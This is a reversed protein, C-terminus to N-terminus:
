RSLDAQDPSGQILESWAQIADHTLQIASNVREARTPRQEVWATAGDEGDSGIVALEEGVPLGVPPAVSSLTSPIDEGPSGEDRMSKADALFSAATAESAALFAADAPAAAEDVIAPPAIAETVDAPLSETPGAEPRDAEVIPGSPDSLRACVLDRGSRVWTSVDPGSPLEFGMSAVLGMLLIRLAM